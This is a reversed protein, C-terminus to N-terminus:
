TKQRANALFLRSLSDSTLLNQKQKKGEKKRKWPFHMVRQFHCVLVPSFSFCCIFDRTSQNRIKQRGIKEFSVIATKTLLSKPFKFKHRSTSVRNILTESARSALHNRTTNRPYRQHQPQISQPPVALSKHIMVSVRHISRKVAFTLM